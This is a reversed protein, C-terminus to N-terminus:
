REIGIAMWVGRNRKMADCCSDLEVIGEGDGQM